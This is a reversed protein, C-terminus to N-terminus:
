LRLNAPIRQLRSQTFGRALRTLRIIDRECRSEMRYVTAIGVHGGRGM